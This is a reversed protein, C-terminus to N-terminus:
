RRPGSRYVSAAPRGICPEVRGRGGEPLSGRRPNRRFVTGTASSRALALPFINDPGPEELSWTRGGDGSFLIGKGFVAARLRGKGEDSLDAVLFSGDEGEAKAMVPNDAAAWHIGSDWLVTVYTGGSAPLFRGVRGGGKMSKWSVGGDPSTLLEDFAALFLTGEPSVALSFLHSSPLSGGLKKWRRGGNGSVFLSGKRLHPCLTKRRPGPSRRYPSGVVTRPRGCLFPVPRVSDPPGSFSNREPMEEPPVM